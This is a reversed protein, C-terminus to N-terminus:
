IDFGSLNDFARASGNFEIYLDGNTPYRLTFPQTYAYIINDIIMQLFTYTFAVADTALPRSSLLM